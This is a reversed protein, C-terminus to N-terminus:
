KNKEAHLKNIDLIKILYEGFNHIVSIFESSLSSYSNDNSTLIKKIENHNNPNFYIAAEGHLERHVPIDSLLVPKGLLAADVSPFDFGEDLSCSIFAKSKLLLQNVAYDCADDIYILNETTKLKKHIKKAKWGYRGVIILKNGASNSVDKWARVLRSYNKRPEITGVAILYNFNFLNPNSCFKCDGCSNLPLRAPKCYLVEANASPYLKILQTKTYESNCIFKHNDRVARDLSIKFSIANLFRYWQSNTIPFIDHVRIFATTKTNPLLNEIQPIFSYSSGSRYFTPKRLIITKIIRLIRYFSQDNLINTSSELELLSIKDSKKLESIIAKADRSIGNREESLFRRSVLINFSANKQEM